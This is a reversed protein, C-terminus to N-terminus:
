ATLERLVAGVATVALLTPVGLVDRVAARTEPQYSMCDLVALDPRFPALRRAAAEAAGADASPALTVSSVEVGPRAWKADLRGRQEELPVLLGIRGNPALGAALGALLRSPFLVGADGDIAPFAGTCNFVLIRAGDRRLAALTEAARAVVAAKSIRADSGDPLRTYLADGEDQPAAIRERALGDLCGRMFLRADPPLFRRFTDALDARPAQGILALGLATM